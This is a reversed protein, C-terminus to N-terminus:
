KDHCNYCHVVMEQSSLYCNYDFCDECIKRQCQYCHFKTMSRKHKKCGSCSDFAPHLLKFVEIKEIEESLRTAEMQHLKARRKGM